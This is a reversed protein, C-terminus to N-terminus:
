CKLMNNNEKIYGGHRRGLIRPMPDIYSHTHLLITPTYPMMVVKAKMYAVYWKLKSYIAYKKLACVMGKDNKCLETSPLPLQILSHIFPHILPSQPSSNM